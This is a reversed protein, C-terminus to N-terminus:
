LLVMTTESVADLFNIFKQQLVNDDKIAFKRGKKLCRNMKKENNLIVAEFAKLM